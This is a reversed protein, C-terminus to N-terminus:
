SVHPPTSGPPVSAPPVEAPHRDGAATRLAGRVRLTRTMLALAALGVVLNVVILVVKMGVSFSLV